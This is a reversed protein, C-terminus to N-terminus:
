ADGRGRRLHPEVDTDPAPEDMTEGTPQTSRMYLLLTLAGSLLLMSGFSGFFVLIVQNEDIPLMAIISGLIVSLIALLYMRLLAFRYGITALGIAMVAGVVLPLVHTSNQLAATLGVGAGVAASILGARLGRRLRTGRGPKRYAVYGTRPYTIREKMWRVVHNVLWFVGIIFGLQAVMLVLAMPGEWDRMRTVLFFGCLLLHIAGFSIEWIGDEFWYRLTKREIAKIPDSAM